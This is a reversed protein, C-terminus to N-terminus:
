KKIEGVTIIIAERIEGRIERANITLYVRKKDLIVHDLTEREKKSSSFRNDLKASFRLGDEGILNVKYYDIPTNDIIEVGFYGDLRFERATTRASRVLNIVEEQTLRVGAIEVEEAHRSKRLILNRTEDVDSNIVELENRRNLAQSFVEMRRTEEQSMIIKTDADKASIKEESRKTIFHKWIAASQYILAVGLLTIIIDQPTMNGVAKELGKTLIEGLNINAISSGKEVKVTFALREKEEDTLIHTTSRGYKLFAYNRNINRQLEIIGEMTKATLTADFKKGTLRISLVPWGKYNIEVAGDPIKNSLAKEILDWAEDESAITFITPAINNM